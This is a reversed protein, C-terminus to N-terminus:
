SATLKKKGKEILYSSIKFGTWGCIMGITGGVLIDTPYHVGLYIRTYTMLIAWVFILGIWKYYPKLTLWVFFSVGFTNASHGSAFGYPGGRYGNVIHILGELSPEHSPRPRAFFPKMFGSTIQDCLIITITVGILAWWGQKGMKRFLFYILLLYLPLWFLIKTMWYVPQDLWEVHASNLWLLLETDWQKIQEM